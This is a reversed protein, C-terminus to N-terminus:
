IKHSIDYVICETKGGHVIFLAPHGKYTGKDERFKNVHDDYVNNDCWNQMKTQMDMKSQAKITTAMNNSKNVMINWERTSIIFFTMM